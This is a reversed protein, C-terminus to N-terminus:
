EEAFVAHTENAKGLLTNFRDFFAVYPPEKEQRKLLDDEECLQTFERAVHIMLNKQQELDLRSWKPTVMVDLRATRYEEIYVENVSAWKLYEGLIKQTMAEILIRYDEKELHVAKKFVWGETGSQLRVKYWGKDSDIVPLLEGKKVSAVIKQSSDPEARVNALSVTVRIM